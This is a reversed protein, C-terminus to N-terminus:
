KDKINLNNLCENIQESDTNNFNCLDISEQKTIKLNKFSPM